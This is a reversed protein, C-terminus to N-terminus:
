KKLYIVNFVPIYKIVLPILCLIVIKLCIIINNDLPIYKWLNFSMEMAHFCLITLTNRGMFNLVRCLLFVITHKNKYSELCQFDKLIIWTIFISSLVSFFRNPFSVSVVSLFMTPASVFVIISLLILDTKKININLVSKQKFLVGMFLFLPSVLIPYLTSISDVWFCNGLIYGVMAIFLLFCFPRKTRKMALWVIQKAFFLVFLFWIPGLRGQLFLKTPELVMEWEVCSGRINQFFQFFIFFAVICISTFIYPRMLQRWCKLWLEKFEVVHFFYGTVIFFLPMHFTFCFDVFTKPFANHSAIVLLMAIGKAMDIYELRKKTNKM